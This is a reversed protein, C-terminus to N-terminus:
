AKIILGSYLLGIDPNFGKFAARYGDAETDDRDGSELSTRYFIAKV